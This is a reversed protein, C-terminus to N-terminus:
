VRLSAGILNSKKYQKRRTAYEIGIMQVTASHSGLEKNAGKTHAQFDYGLLFHGQERIARCSLANCYNWVQNVSYAWQNLVKCHKDRIGVKLTKTHNKIKM